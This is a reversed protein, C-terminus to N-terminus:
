HRCLFFLPACFVHVTASDLKRHLKHRCQVDSTAYDEENRMKRVEFVALFRYNHLERSRRHWM